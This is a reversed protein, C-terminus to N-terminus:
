PNINKLNKTSTGNVLMSFEAKIPNAFKSLSYTSAKSLVTNAFRFMGHSFYKKMM